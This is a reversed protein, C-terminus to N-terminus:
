INKGTCMLKPWSRESATHNIFTAYKPRRQSGGNHPMLSVGAMQKAM